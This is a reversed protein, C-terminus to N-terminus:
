HCFTLLMCYMRALWAYPLSVVCVHVCVLLDLFPVKGGGEDDHCIYDGLLWGAPALLLTSFIEACSLVKGGGM